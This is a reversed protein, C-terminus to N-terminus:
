PTANPGTIRATADERTIRLAPPIHVAHSPVQRCRPAMTWPYKGGDDVLTSATPASASAASTSPASGGAAADAPAAFMARAMKGQGAGQRPTQITRAM